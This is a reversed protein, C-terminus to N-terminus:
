PGPKRPVSQTQIETRSPRYELLGLGHIAVILGIVLLIVGGQTGGRRYVIVGGAILALAAILEIVQGASV